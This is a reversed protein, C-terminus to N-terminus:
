SPGRGIFNLIANSVRSTVFKKFIRENVSDIKLNFIVLDGTSSIKTDESMFPISLLELKEIM